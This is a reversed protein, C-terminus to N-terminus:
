SDCHHCSDHHHCNVAKCEGPLQALGVCTGHYHDGCSSCYVLNAIDGPSKCTYCISASLLTWLNTHESTIEIIYQLFNEIQRGDKPKNILDVLFIKKLTVYLILIIKNTDLYFFCM